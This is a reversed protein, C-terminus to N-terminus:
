VNAEPVARTLALVWAGTDPDREWHSPVFGLEVCVRTGAYTVREADTLPERQSRSAADLM